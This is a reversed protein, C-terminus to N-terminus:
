PKCGQHQEVFVHVVEGLNKPTMPFILPANAVGCRDCVLLATCPEKRERIRIWPANM